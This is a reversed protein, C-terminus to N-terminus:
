LFNIGLSYGLRKGLLIEALNNCGDVIAMFEVHNM